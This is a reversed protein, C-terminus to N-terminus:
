RRGRLKAIVFVIIAIVLVVLFLATYFGASFIDGILECGTLTFMMILISLVVLHKM